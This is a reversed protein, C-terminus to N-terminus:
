VGEIHETRSPEVAWSESLGLEQARDLSAGCKRFLATFTVRGPMGDANVGLARQLPRVDIM